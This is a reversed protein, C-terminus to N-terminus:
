QKDERISIEGSSVIDEEGNEYRVILRCNKDIGILVAKKIESPSIIKIEKGIWMIRDSYSKYYTNQELENYYNIFRNLVGAAIRNRMDSKKMDFVAGAINKITDPFGGEPEYTNIGIGLVAYELVGYEMDLAAETLIGCIKKGDMYVDNVWKIETKKGSIEEIVEATASAAATTIKIAESASISPRLLLSMYLGTDSPSYFNRGLRGRGATQEGSIIVTGERAGAAAAEKLKINTSDITKYIIIDNIFNNNIYKKVGDATIVDNNDMLRYGKNTVAEISYGESELIKIAKWVASRTCGIGSAIEEGSVFEGKKKELLGILKEKVTM